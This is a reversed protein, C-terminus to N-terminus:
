GSMADHIPQQLDAPLPSPIAVTRYGDVRLLIDGERDVVRCDFSGDGVPHVMAFLQTDPQPRQLVTVLDAHAPLALQGTQGIEWLGATQLCAEALRPETTTHDTEPLHGAPLHQALRAVAIRGSQWAEDIVQYAPGHFLVRYIDGHTAAATTQEGPTEGREPRLAGAALRVRGTFHTTTRPTEDGKLTRSASLACDAVLGAGDPQIVAALTVTRPEDRYFKVPATFNVQEIGAVRLHPAALSALAAFAEIGMVGPLVPASDIRHDHLFPQAAPDLATEATLGSYVGMGTITGVMPGSASADIAGTDLGGTADLEATLVGLQGGVVVEGSFPGATLERRIWPIGTEPALMEIGAMAMVKPVSGRTAMGLGAWATWDLAIGRTGPRTTRFSSTIKCLLDNAASYDTQGANGFRAAVSSFVVTAGIPLDAAAHLLNFLGDSKVDFVRDYERPQKDAIAHSIDLGAAHLLVDVRAHRERIGAVVGAVADPDTLDVAHYCAEGGAARVSRIAMLASHLREYRALEREILVPTPRTGSAALRETIM